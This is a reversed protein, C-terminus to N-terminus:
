VWHNKNVCYKIANISELGMGLFLQKNLSMAIEVALTNEIFIICPQYNGCKQIECRMKQPIKLFLISNQWIYKCYWTKKELNKQNIWVQGAYEIVEVGNKGM